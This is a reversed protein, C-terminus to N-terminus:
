RLQIGPRLPAGLPLNRSRRNHAAAYGHARERHWGARPYKWGLPHWGVYVTREYVRPRVSRELALRELRKKEKEEREAQRKERAEGLDLAAQRLQGYRQRNADVRENSPGREIAIEKISVMDRPWHTSYTVRGGADVSKYVPVPMDGSFETLYTTSRGADSAFALVPLLILGNALSLQLRRSYMCLGVPVDAHGTEYRYPRWM